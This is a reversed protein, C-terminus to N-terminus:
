NPLDRQWQPIAPGQCRFKTSAWKKKELEVHKRGDPVACCCNPKRFKVDPNTQFYLKCHRLEPLGISCDTACPVSILAGLYAEAHFFVALPALSPTFYALTTACVTNSFIFHFYLFSFIFHFYLFSFIFIAASMSHWFLFPETVERAQRNGPSLRLVCFFPVSSICQPLVHIDEKSSYYEMTYVMLKYWSSSFCM